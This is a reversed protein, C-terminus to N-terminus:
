YRHRLGDPATGIRQPIRLLCKLGRQMTSRAVSVPAIMMASACSYAPRNLLSSVSDRAVSSLPCPPRLFMTANEARRPKRCFSRCGSQRCSFYRRGRCAAADGRRLEQLAEDFFARGPRMEIDGSGRPLRLVLWQRDFARRREAHPQQVPKTASLKSFLHSFDTEIMQRAFRELLCQGFQQFFRKLAPRAGHHHCARGFAGLRQRLM